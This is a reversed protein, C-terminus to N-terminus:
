WDGTVLWGSGRAEAGGFATAALVLDGQRGARDCDRFGAERSRTGPGGSQPGRRSEVRQHRCNRFVVGLGAAEASQGRMTEVALGALDLFSRWEGPPILRAHSPDRLKEVAHAWQAAEADDDPVTGDIVVLWGGPVLVRSVERVFAAPDSFHHAAVRCTVVDFSGDPYPLEEAAHSRATCPFNESTLLETANELMRESVDGTVVQFGRRALWLATHGGGTAVDLARLGTGEPFGLGDVAADLDGVDALVHSRGYRDSQRDFQERAAEQERNLSM